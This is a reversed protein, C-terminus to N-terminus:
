IRTTDTKGRWVGPVIKTAIGNGILLKALDDLNDAMKRTCSLGRNVSVKTKTKRKVKTHNALLRRIFFLRGINKSITAQKRSIKNGLFAIQMRPALLNTRTWKSGGPFTKVHDFNPNFRSLYYIAQFINM